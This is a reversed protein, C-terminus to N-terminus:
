SAPQRAAQRQRRAPRRLLSKMFAGVPRPLCFVDWLCLSAFVAHAGSVSPLRAEGDKSKEEPKKACLSMIDGPLLDQVAIREWKIYKWRLVKASVPSM